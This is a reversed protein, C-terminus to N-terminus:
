QLSILEPKGFGANELPELQTSADGVVVYYMKEPNIFKQCLNIHEELTMSRLLDQERDIFDGPLDFEDIDRLMGQLAWLTEYNRANSKLLAEKTFTLDELPIGTRYNRMEDRFIEVSELTADSRVSSSAVFSGYLGNLDFGSRAGYTFGKEERLVMNLRGNFAGGLKYNAVHAAYHELHDKPQYLNGIRIVSQKAGPFDVFYIKSDPTETNVELDPFAIKRPTWEAALTRFSKDTTPKDVDGVILLSAVTPSFAKEYYNKLDELTISEVSEVTGSTSTALLTGEGFLLNNLAQRAIYNPNAANRKLNNIVKMKAIAFEEEDWRPEFLIEKVLEVTKNLNRALANVNINISELDARIWIDAGLLDIAEELEEPTKNATGEMLMTAVLSAVGSKNPPDLLHGGKMTISYQVLPLENHEIGLVKIKNELSTKWVEPATVVPEPGPEPEVSRDFSSPTKKIEEGEQTVEAIKYVNDASEEVIKAKECNNASLEMKGKPVFSTLVFPKDKIYKDYVREIDEITVAKINEIDEAVFDPDGAYENYRALRYSKGLVSSIGNYFDTELGAKIKELDTETIGETEFKKFADFVAEEANALNTEANAPVSITFRGSLEMAYNYASVRSSLQKEKVLEKYLPAKKNGGLIEALFDLAYADPHYQEVTPWVMTLLPTKAFNDEHYLRKTRDLTVPIPDLDEVKDGGPIEGFYKEILAKMQDSEFDGAVVLTANNPLYFKQHFEKVDYVTANFLDEMEGIVQWNYPHGEPFLNKHIVYNNHGYPNNDVRQRKENLVVDQQNAFASQTVTNILFGMRDSELWLALEAANKPVVEFYITGDPSTGGNLTGGAGQIKKFFEDQGVNESQQFMMHEFLHAFGTKGPEERNSGVHYQIAVAVIPDSMDQHLIVDLGNELTYKEFDISLEEGSRNCGAFVIIALSLLTVPLFKYITRM